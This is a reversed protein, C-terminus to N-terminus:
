YLRYTHSERKTGVCLMAEPITLGMVPITADGELEMSVMENFSVWVWSNSLVLFM